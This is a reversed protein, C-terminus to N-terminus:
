RKRATVGFARPAPRVSSFGAAHLRQIVGKTVSRGSKTDPSGIYHFLRGSQQLIRFIEAYYSRSYLQGALSFMPPDHLVTGFCQDPFTAILEASDGMRQEITPNDFLKRSWPNQRCIELVTPDLEITVVRDARQAAAIATYGLGTSTDLVAGRLHGAARIKAATDQAPDTGKIRHMPIGSVLLTPPGPTPYLSYHRNFAQSFAQIKRATGDVFAYCGNADQAIEELAPWPLVSGDALAVGADSLHLSTRTLGLDVSAQVDPLAQSRAELLPAAQYHSLVPPTTM